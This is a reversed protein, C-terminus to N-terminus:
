QVNYVFNQFNSMSWSSKVYVNEIPRGSIECVAYHQMSYVGGHVPNSNVISTTIPVSQEPLQLDL